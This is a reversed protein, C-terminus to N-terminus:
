RRHEEGEQVLRETRRRESPDDIAFCPGIWWARYARHRRHQRQLHRLPPAAARLLDVVEDTDNGGDHFPHGDGTWRATNWHRRPDSRDIADGEIGDDRRAS